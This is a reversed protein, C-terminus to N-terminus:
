RPPGPDTARRARVAFVIASLVFLAATVALWRELYPDQTMGTTPQYNAESLQLVLPLSMLLLLLSVIAPAAVHQLALVRRRGAHAGAVGRMVRYVGTYLPLFVFDHVIIAGGLWLLVIWPATNQFIAWLAYATVAYTFLMALAHSPGRDYVRRLLGM